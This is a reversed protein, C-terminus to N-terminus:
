FTKKSFNSVLKLKLFFIPFKLKCGLYASQSLTKPTPQTIQPTIGNLSDFLNYHLTVILNSNNSPQFLKIILYPGMYAIYHNHLSYTAQIQCVNYFETTSGSSDYILINSGNECNITTTTLALLIQQNNLFNLFITLVV